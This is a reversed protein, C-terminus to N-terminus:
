PPNFGSKKIKGRKPFTSLGGLLPTGWIGPYHSIEEGPTLRPPSGEKKQFLGQFLFAGRKQTKPSLGGLILNINPIKKLPGKSAKGGGNSKPNNEEM